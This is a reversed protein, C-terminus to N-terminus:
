GRYIVLVLNTEMGLRVMLSTLLMHLPCSNQLFESEVDSVRLRTGLAGAVLVLLIARM